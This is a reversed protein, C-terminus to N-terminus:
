AEDGDSAPADQEDQAARHRRMSRVTWWLLVGFPALAVVIEIVFWSM